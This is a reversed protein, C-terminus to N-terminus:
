ALLNDIKWTKQQLKQAPVIMKINVYPYVDNRTYDISMNTVIIGDDHNDLYKMILEHIDDYTKQRRIDYLLAQLKESDMKLGGIRKGM